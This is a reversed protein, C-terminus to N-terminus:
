NAEKWAVTLHRGCPRARRYSFFHQSDAFTCVKAMEINHPQIGENELQWQSIKWFDFYHEKEQFSWFTEPLETKYHIFQGNEPGLSPSICVILEQPKSGFELAMKAITEKYINSCSGKWGSHICAFAEHTPDYIITAQCDAHQITLAVNEEKTILSDAPETVQRDAKVCHVNAKHVQDPQILCIKESLGVAQFAKQRNRSVVEPDDGVFYSLNLSEYPAQSEGGLRSFIAHRIKPFPQLLEFEFWVVGNKAKRLM